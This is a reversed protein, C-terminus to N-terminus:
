SAATRLRFDAFDIHQLGPSAWSEDDGGFFTSFFIGEIGLETVDRFEVGDATFVVEDGVSVEIVGDFHGPRNLRLHQRITVWQGRPFTWAGRGMSTGHEQSTPLYAYVEGQGGKRWMYRTSFGNAGDPVRGGATATGAYLGPLKGGRVWEFDAPFRVRYELTAEGAPQSLTLYAQAGGEPADLTRAVVQSASGEPYFVRLFREPDAEDEAAMLAMREWGFSGGDRVGVGQGVFEALAAPALPADVPVREVRSQGWGGTGVVALVLVPIALVGLRVRRNVARLEPL